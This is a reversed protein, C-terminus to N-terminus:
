MSEFSSPTHLSAACGAMEKEVSPTRIYGRTLAGIRTMNKWEELGIEEMGSPVNFRYYPFRQSHDDSNAREWMNRHTDESDTSLKVLEEAFRKLTMVGGPIRSYQGATGMLPVNSAVTKVSGTFGSLMGKIRQNIGGMPVKTPQSDHSEKTMNVPESQGKKPPEQSQIFDATKQIGTGISVISIHKMSKWHRKAEAFAVESPNNRKLGGDIYWGGPPPVEVWAPPFYSPAASTSRAAQWISCQDKDFGYSRFLKLPGSADQGETAVVFVPCSKEPNRDHPDAMSANEDGSFEHIIYKLATELPKEDFRCHNEGIPVGMKVNDLCFVFKSLEM